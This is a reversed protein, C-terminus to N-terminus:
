LSRTRTYTPTPHPCKLCRKYRPYTRYYILHSRITKGLSVGQIHTLQEPLSRRGFESFRIRFYKIGGKGWQTQDSRELEEERRRTRLESMGDSGYSVSGVAAGRPLASGGSRGDRPM